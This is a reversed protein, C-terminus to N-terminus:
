VSEQSTAVLILLSIALDTDRPLEEPATFEALQNPDITLSKSSPFVTRLPFSTSFTALPADSPDMIPLVPRAM